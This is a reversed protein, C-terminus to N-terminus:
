WDLCVESRRQVVMKRVRGEKNLWGVSQSQKNDEQNFEHRFTSLIISMPVIVVIVVVFITDSEADGWVHEVNRGTQKSDTDSYPRCYYLDKWCVRLSWLDGVQVRDDM